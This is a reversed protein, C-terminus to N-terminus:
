IIQSLGRIKLTTRRMDGRHGRTSESFDPTVLLVMSTFGMIGPVLVIVVDGPM